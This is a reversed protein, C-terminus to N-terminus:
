GVRERQEFRERGRRKVDDLDLTTSVGRVSAELAPRIAERCRNLEAQYARFQAVVEEITLTARGHDLQQGLFRHFEQLQSHQGTSM